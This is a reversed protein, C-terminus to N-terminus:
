EEASRSAIDNIEVRLSAPMHSSLLELEEEFFQTTDAVASLLRTPTKRGVARLVEAPEWSRSGPPHLGLDELESQSAGRVVVSALSQLWQQTLVSDQQRLVDLLTVPGPGDIIAAAVARREQELAELSQEHLELLTGGRVASDLRGLWRALAAARAYRDLVLGLVSRVDRGAVDGDDFVAAGVEVSVVPFGGQTAVPAEESVPGSLEHKVRLAENPRLPAFDDSPNPALLGAYRDVAVSTVRATGSGSGVMLDLSWATITRDGANRLTVEVTNQPSVFVDDILLAAEALSPTVLIPKSAYQAEILAQLSRLPAPVADAPAQARALSGALALSSMLGLRIWDGLNMLRM